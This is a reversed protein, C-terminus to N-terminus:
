ADSGGEIDPLDVTQGALAHTCDGLFEIRGGTVFSHCIFSTEKDALMAGFEGGTREMLADWEDDSLNARTGRVVISPRITPAEADGNYDWGPSAPRLPVSHVEACGPCAFGVRLGGNFLKAKTSM